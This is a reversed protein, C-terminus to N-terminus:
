VLCMGVFLLHREQFGKQAVEWTVVSTIPYNGRTQRSLKTAETATIRSVSCHYLHGRLFVKVRLSMVSDRCIVLVSSVTNGRPILSRYM